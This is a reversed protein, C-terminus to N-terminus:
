GGRGHLDKRSLGGVLVGLALLLIIAGLTFRGVLIGQCAGARDALGSGDLSVM